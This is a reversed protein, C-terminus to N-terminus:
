DSERGYFMFVMAILILIVGGLIHSVAFIMTNECECMCITICLIAIISLVAEVWKRMVLKKKM